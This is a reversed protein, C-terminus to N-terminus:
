IKIKTIKKIVKDSYYDCELICKIFGKKDNQIYALCLDKLQQMDVDKTKKSLSLSLIEFQNHNYIFIKFSNEDYLCCHDDIGLNIVDLYNGLYKSVGYFDRDIIRAQYEKYLKYYQTKELIAVQKNYLDNLLTDFFAISIKTDQYNFYKMNGNDKLLHNLIFQNKQKFDLGNWIDNIEYMVDDFALQIKNKTLLSEYNIILDYYDKITKVKIQLNSGKLQMNMMKIRNKEEKTKFIIFKNDKNLIKLIKDMNSVYHMLLVFYM